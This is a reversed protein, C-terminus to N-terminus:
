KRKYKNSVNTEDWTTNSFGFKTLNKNTFKLIPVLILFQKYLLLRIKPTWIHM